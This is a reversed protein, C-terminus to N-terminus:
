TCEGLMHVITTLHVEALTLAVVESGETLWKGLFNPLRSIEYKQPRGTGMISIEKIKPEYLWLDQCEKL